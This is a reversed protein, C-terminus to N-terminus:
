FKAFLGSVRLFDFVVNINVKTFLTTLDTVNYYQNRIHSFDACDILIHKITMPAQCPICEPMPEGKLLYSHTFHTHGIRIRTLVKEERRTLNQHRPVVAITPHINYLKNEPFTNWLTQWKNNILKHINVKFDTSPIKLNSENFNLAEKALRDARENGPIGVHSPIWAFVVSKGMSKCQNNLNILDYIFPHNYNCGNIAQLSSLSDTYVIFRLGILNQVLNLALKLAQLEATYISANGPLRLQATLEHATAACAVRDLVKSGDTYIPKYDQYNDNLQGFLSQFLSPNGLDKKHSTLFFDITPKVITWPPVPTFLFPAISDTNPCIQSFSERIRHGFSTIANPKSTYFDAYKPNFVLDCTPNDPNNPLKLAYQLSLKEWRLALPPENAEIYLSQKPSTRFAGLCIRLAQNQIPELKELYSKRASSYVACGYDLKSRVLSRYLRLLVVRDAGWDMKTVVRLLNLAKQCKGRLYEIHAKFNLKSDFILGLFKTQSVVPIADGYITLVPDLHLKRQNCFHICVTKTKSFRFGNEDAWREIKNLCMQLQREITAMNKSACSVSFDDVFLSKDIGERIVQALSNIKLIFLTVSLICGQPVGMEQEFIDSFISGLRVKFNRNNLFNKIFTPMRGRIGLRHLDKMIGHKWTTDYAKELDFFISVVHDGKVFADRILTELRLLQDNTTRGRRFGAQCKNIFSKTELFWVLRTNIMREMTKCLCSTLAIPRYNTPNTPDKGPKPIPVVTAEQWSPPFNGTQWIKNFIQLLVALSPRSLHKLFQYHIEDPGTATDHSKNLSEILETINFLMNYDESNNSNFNLKEKEAQAKYKQFRPTYHNSSSNKSFEEALKNVIDKRDTCKTGDTNNLFSVSSSSQKGSIKRIMDWTKKVPTSSNLKTIYQKWSERKSNKVTRRAAARAKKYENLNDDTPSKRFKLLANKRTNVAKKCETDFWPKPINPNPSSKPITQNAINLLTNAFEAIPDELNEFKDFTILQQSLNQFDSWNAKSLKWRPTRDSDIPETVNLFIPFHDSGCQDEHVMWEFDMFITPSCISLDIASYSGTPSHLYTADGSNFLCLDNNQIFQEIKNGLNNNDANGWLTSHANFDGVLMYPTPLQSVLADLDTININLRPPIYISCITFTRHISVSVAVAQLTTNLTLPEHPVGKKVLVSSGGIPRGDVATSTVNYM